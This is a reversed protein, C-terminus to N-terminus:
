RRSRYRDRMSEIMAASGTPETAEIDVMAQADRRRNQVERDARMLALLEAESNSM